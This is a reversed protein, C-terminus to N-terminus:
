YHNFQVPANELEYFSHPLPYTLLLDNKTAGTIWHISRDDADMRSLVLVVDNSEPGIWVTQFDELALTQGPMGLTVRVTSTNRLAASVDYSPRSDIVFAHVRKDDYASGCSRPMTVVRGTHYSEHNRLMRRVVRAVDDTTDEAGDTNHNDNSVNHNNPSHGNSTLKSLEVNNGFVCDTAPMASHLGDLLMDRARQLVEDNSEAGQEQMVICKVPGRFERMALQLSRLLPCTNEAFMSLFIMPLQMLNDFLAHLDGEADANDHRPADESGSAPSLKRELYTANPFLTNLLRDQFETCNKLVCGSNLNFFLPKQNKLYKEFDDNNKTINSIRGYIHRSAQRGILVTAPACGDENNLTVTLEPVGHHPLQKDSLVNAERYRHLAILYPLFNPSAQWPRAEIFANYLFPILLDKSSRARNNVAASGFELEYRTNLFRFMNTCYAFPAHAAFRRLERREKWLSTAGVSNQIDRATMKAVGISPASHQLLTPVITELAPVPVTVNMSGHAERSASTSSARKQWLNLLARPLHDEPKIDIEMINFLNTYSVAESWSRSKKPQRAQTLIGAEAHVITGGHENLVDTIDVDNNVFYDDNFYLHVSTINKVRWLHQEIVHSNATLRIGHPLISDQHVTTVRYHIGDSSHRGNLAPGGCQVTLFNKAPNIWTPHHGPSVIVIRGRHWRIHQELSRFSFRLEDLDRDRSDATRASFATFQDLFSRASGANAAQRFCKKISSLTKVPPMSWTPGVTATNGNEPLVANIHRPISDRNHGDQLVKTMMQQNWLIEAEKIVSECARFFIKRYGHNAESGNVFTYIIDMDSYKGMLEERTMKHTKIKLNPLSSTNEPSSFGKSQHPTHAAQTRWANVRASGNITAKEAEGKQDTYSGSMRNVANKMVTYKIRTRNDIIDILNTCTYFAVSFVVCLTLTCLTFLLLRRRVVRTFFKRLRLVRRPRGSSFRLRSFARATTDPRTPMYAHAGSASYNDHQRLMM